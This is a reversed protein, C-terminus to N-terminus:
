NSLYTGKDQWIRLGTLRGSFYAGTDLNVRMGERKAQEVPTHGHVVYKTLLHAKDFFASRIFVLDEDRQKDLPLDPRIGAHVFIFRGSEILIPLSRLFARHSAPITERIITDVQSEDKYIGRLRQHDIGYSSLTPAAGMGLWASLSARGELYDLM